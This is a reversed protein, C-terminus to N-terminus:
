CSLKQLGQLTRMCVADACLAAHLLHQEHMRRAQTFKAAIFGESYAGEAPSRGEIACIQNRYWFLLVQRGDM